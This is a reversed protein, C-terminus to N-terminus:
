CQHIRHRRIPHLLSSFSRSSVRSLVRIPILLRFSLPISLVFSFSSPQLSHSPSLLPLDCSTPLVASAAPYRTQICTPQMLKFGILAVSGTNGTAHTPHISILAHIGVGAIQFFIFTEYRMMPKRWRWPLSMTNIYWRLPVVRLVAKKGSFLIIRVVCTTRAYVRAESAHRLDDSAM